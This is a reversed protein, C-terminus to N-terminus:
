EADNNCGQGATRGDTREAVAPEADAHRAHGDGAHDEDARCRADDRHRQQGCKGEYHDGREEEAQAPPREVWQHAREHLTSNGGVFLAAHIAHLEGDKVRRGRQRHERDAEGHLAEADRGGVEAEGPDESRGGEQDQKCRSELLDVVSSGEDRYGVLVVGYWNAMWM